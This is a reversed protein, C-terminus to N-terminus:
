PFVTATQAKKVTPAHMFFLCTSHHKLSRTHLSDPLYGPQLNLSSKERRLSLLRLRAVAKALELASLFVVASVDPSRAKQGRVLGHSWRPKPSSLCVWAEANKRSGPFASFENHACGARRVIDFVCRCWAPFYDFGMGGSGGEARCMAARRRGSFLHRGRRSRSGVSRNLLVFWAFCSLAHM